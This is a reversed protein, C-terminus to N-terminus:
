KDGRAAEIAPRHDVAWDALVKLPGILSRGTETLAYEVRPPVEPYATRTVLGDAELGRLTLTLMRHSVGGIARMIQNFRMPGPALVGVVMVTWKNGIRDLICGLARCEAHPDAPNGPTCPMALGGPATDARPQTEPQNAPRAM